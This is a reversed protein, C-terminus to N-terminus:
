RLYKLLSYITALCASAFCIYGIFRSLTDRNQQLHGTQENGPIVNLTLSRSIFSLSVICLANCVSLWSLFTRENALGDRTMTNSCMVSTQFFHSDPMCLGSLCHDTEEEEESLTPCGQTVGQGFGAETAAERSSTTRAAALIAAFELAAEEEEFASTGHHLHLTCTREDHEEVEEEIVGCFSSPRVRYTHVSYARPRAPSSMTRPRQPQTVERRIGDVQGVAQESQSMTHPGQDQDQDQGCNNHIDSRDNEKPLPRYPEHRSIADDSASDSGSVSSTQASPIGSPSEETELQEEIPALTPQSSSAAAPIDSPAPLLSPSHSPPPPPPKDTAM